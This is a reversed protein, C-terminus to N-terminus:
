ITNLTNGIFHVYYSNQFCSVGFSRSMFIHVQLDLIKAGACFKNRMDQLKIVWIEIFYM